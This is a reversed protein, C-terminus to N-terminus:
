LSTHLTFHSTRNCLSHSVSDLRTIYKLVCASGTARVLLLFILM